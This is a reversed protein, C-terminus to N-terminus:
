FQWKQYQFSATFVKDTGVKIGLLPPVDAGVLVADGIARLADARAKPTLTPWTAQLARVGAALRDMSVVSGTGSLDPAEGRRRAQARAATGPAFEARAEPRLKSWERARDSARARRHDGRRRRARPTPPRPATTM